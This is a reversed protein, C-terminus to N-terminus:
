SRTLVVTAGSSLNGGSGHALAVGAGPVQREGADGRLQRVAEIVLFTGYMGPHLASLGGGNTNVPLEGGPAIRGGSVFPGGEGPGCFGLAELTMVVTITFSDYIEAVDVDAPGIGAMSMARRGSLEAAEFRALDRMSAITNHTHAEGFGGVAVAPQRLDRAREATTLVVAGAGDTVLCCDARRLPDCILPSARVDDISLPDRRVAAPNRGAWARAAVAVEALQEPTTGYTHMHRAAALAYAGIPAPLGAPTQWQFIGDAPRGGLTAGRSSRQTSAFVCVAVDCYGAAIALSAHAIHAETAAGGLNTGDSFTPVIGLYEGLSLTIMTGAGPLGWEGATLLGDVDSLTLGADDLAAVTAQASLGLPTSGPPFSGGPGLPLDAVGAIVPRRRAPVNRLVQVLESSM